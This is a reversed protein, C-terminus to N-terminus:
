RPQVDAGSAQLPRAAAPRALAVPGARGAAAAAAEPVAPAVASSASASSAPADTGRADGTAALPRDRLAAVEAGRGLHELLAHGAAEAKSRSAVDPTTSLATTHPVPQGASSRLFHLMQTLDAEDM